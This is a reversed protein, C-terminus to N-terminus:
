NDKLKELIKDMESDIPKFLYNVIIYVFGVLEIFGKIATAIILGESLKLYSAGVLIILLDVVGLQFALLWFLKNAYSNRMKINQNQITTWTDIIKSKGELNNRHREYHEQEALTPAKSLQEKDNQSYRQILNNISEDINQTSKM